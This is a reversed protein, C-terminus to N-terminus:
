VKVAADAMSPFDPHPTVHLVQTITGIQKLMRGVLSVKSPHIASLVDEIIVPVQERGGCREILTLRAALYLTDLDKPSLEAAPVRRSGELVTARGINDVELGSYRRDTLASFYQVLRDRLLNAAGAADTMMLDSAITLFSPLPDELAALPAASATSTERTAALQAPNAAEISRKVRDIDREVERAERVYGGKESMQTELAEQERKLRQEKGVVAAHSSDREMADLRLRLEQVQRGLQTKKALVPVIDEPKEVKLASMAKKIPAAEADFDELIKKERSATREGRRSDRQAQQLDDVYRLATLAAFGFAPIDLLAVYRSAGRIAVGAIFLVAGAGIGAWFRLNTKLPEVSKPGFGAELDSGTGLKAVAADRKAVLQPFREARAAIDKPLQLTEPSPACALAAEAERLSDRLANAAQLTTQVESLDSVIADLRTQMRELDQAAELEKMLELLKSRAAQVDSAPQVAQAAALSSPTSAASPVARPKARKSPFQSLTLSFAQEFTRKHPLGIQARLFQAMELTDDTVLESQNTTPEVRHLVGAGGLERLLRYTGQDKGQMVLTITGRRGPAQFAAEGGRGDPFLLASLLGALPLHGASPALVVYGAPISFRAGATFGRVGDAAVELIHM